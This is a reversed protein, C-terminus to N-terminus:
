LIVRTMTFTIVFMKPINWIEINLKVQFLMAILTKLPEGPYKVEQYDNIPWRSILLQFCNFRKLFPNNTIIKTKVEDDCSREEGMQLRVQKLFSSSWIVVLYFFSNKNWDWRLMRRRSSMRRRTLSTERWYLPKVETEHTVACRNHLNMTMKKATIRWCWM